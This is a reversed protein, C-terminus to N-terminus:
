GASPQATYRKSFNVALYGGTVGVLIAWASHGIRQTLERRKFGPTVRSSTQIPDIIRQSAILIRDTILRDRLRAEMPAFALFMYIWATLCFGLWFTRSSDSLFSGALTAVVLLGLSISFVADAWEDTCRMAATIVLAIYATAILFARLSFRPLSM